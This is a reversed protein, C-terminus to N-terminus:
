SNDLSELATIENQHTKKYIEGYQDKKDYHPLKKQSKRAKPGM